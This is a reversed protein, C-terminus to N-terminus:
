SGLGYVAFAVLLGAFGQALGAVLLSLSVATAGFSLLVRRSRVDSLLAAVPEVPLAVWSLVQELASVAVVSLGFTSRFTPTLVTLAGSLLEDTFRAVLVLAAARDPVDDRRRLSRARVMTMVTTTLM